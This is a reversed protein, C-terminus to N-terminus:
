TIQRRWSFFRPALFGGCIGLTVSWLLTLYFFLSPSVPTLLEGILRPVPSWIWSLVTLWLFSPEPQGSAMAQKMARLAAFSADILVITGSVHVLIVIICAKVSFSKM